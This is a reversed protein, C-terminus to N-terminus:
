GGARFPELFELLARNVEAPREQQVWHGAGAIREIRLQTVARKMEAIAHEGRPGAVVADQSGAIFLAPQEIRAGTWAATLEWNRDLNRYLNLGSGFGTRQYEAAFLDLDSELLWSPLHQPAAMRDLFGEGEPVLLPNDRDRTSDLVGCLLKRLTVRPDREFEREAAETQFYFWYFRDLGAAALTAMPPKPGRPRFPVSMAAVARFVDPRMLACHWAVPAGWDHGVIIARTEGLKRVLQVIDGVLHLISYASVDAPADSQGFGRLDPAVVRFGAEALVPMQHRWSYWLEPWGHCLVILPGRGRGAVHLRVTDLEVIEHEIRDTM